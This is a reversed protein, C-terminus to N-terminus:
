AGEKNHDRPVHRVCFTIRVRHKFKVNKLCLFQRFMNIPKTVAVVLNVFNRRFCFCIIFYNSALFIGSTLSKQIEIENLPFVTYVPM